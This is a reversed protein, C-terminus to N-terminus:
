PVCAAAQGEAREEDDGWEAGQPEQERQQEVGGHVAPPKQPDSRAAATSSQAPRETKRATPAGLSPLALM